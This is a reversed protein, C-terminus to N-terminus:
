KWHGQIFHEWFDYLTVAATVAAFAVILVKRGFKIERVLATTERCLQLIENLKNNEEQTLM